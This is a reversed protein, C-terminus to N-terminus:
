SRVDLGGEICAREVLYLVRDLPQGPLDAHVKDTPVLVADQRKVALAFGSGQAGFWLDVPGQDATVSGLFTPEGFALLAVPAASHPRGSFGAVDTALPGSFAQRCIEVFQARGRASELAGGLLREDFTAFPQAGRLLAYGQLLSPDDGALSALRVPGATFDAAFAELEARRAEGQSLAPAGGAASLRVPHAAAELATSRPHMGTLLIRAGRGRPLQVNLVYVLLHDRRLEVGDHVQRTMAFAEELDLTAYPTLLATTLARAPADATHHRDRGSFSAILAQLHAGVGETDLSLDLAQVGEVFAEGKTLPRPSERRALEPLSFAAPLTSTETYETM